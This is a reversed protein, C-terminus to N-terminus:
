DSRAAARCLQYPHFIRRQRGHPVDLRHRLGGMSFRASTCNPPLQGMTRCNLCLYVGGPPESWHADAPLYRQAAKLAADRRAKCAQRVRDLHGIMAGTQLYHHMARQNLGPTCV